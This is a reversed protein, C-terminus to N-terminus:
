KHEEKRIYKLSQYINGKFKILAELNAKNDKCGLKNLKMIEKEYFEEPKLQRKYVLDVGGQRCEEIGQLILKFGEEFEEDENKTTFVREERKMAEAFRDIVFMDNMTNKKFPLPDTSPAKQKKPIVTKEKKNMADSYLFNMLPEQVERYRNALFKQGKPLCELHKLQNDISRAEIKMKDPSSNAELAEVLIQPDVLVSQLAKNHDILEKMAPNSNIASQLFDPNMIFTNALHKTLSRAFKEGPKPM